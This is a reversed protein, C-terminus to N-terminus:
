KRDNKELREKIENELIQLVNLIMSRAYVIQGDIFRSDEVHETLQNILDNFATLNLNKIAIWVPNSKFEHIQSLSLGQSISFDNDDDREKTM